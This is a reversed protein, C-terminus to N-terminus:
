SPYVNILDRCMSLIWVCQYSGRQSEEEGPQVTGSSQFGLSQFKNLLNQQQHVFNILDLEVHTHQIQLSVSSFMLLISVERLYDSIFRESCMEPQQLPTMELCDKKFPSSYMQVRKFPFNCLQM